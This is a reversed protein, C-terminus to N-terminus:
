TLHQIKRARKEARVPFEEERNELHARCLGAWPCEGCLPAGNPVCVIAGLEMLAQCFDGAEKPYVEKLLASFEAKTKNDDINRGDALLRTLIRLVNGDVAPCPLDYAISCIAGATYDGIGALARVGEFTKPFGDKAIVKAAKHLNRARSYYGLGEWYKLVEDESAEALETATPFRELFRVYYEKVAEVRTQQLMIESVWVKYADHTGRWPLTRKHVRYWGLLPPVAQQLIEKM